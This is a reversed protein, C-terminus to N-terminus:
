KKINKSSLIEGLYIVFYETLEEAGWNSDGFDVDIGEIRVQLTPVHLGYGNRLELVDFDKWIIQNSGSPTEKIFKKVYYENINRYEEKKEGSLIMDFWKKKIPLHLVKVEQKESMIFHKCDCGIVSCEGETYNVSIIKKHLGRVHGCQCKDNSYKDM